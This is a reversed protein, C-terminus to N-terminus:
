FMSTTLIPQRTPRRYRVRTATHTAHYTAFFVAVGADEDFSSTHLEYSAGPAIGTAFGYMWECYDKVTSVEALPESQAVFTANDAVYQKCGAWGEPADCAAFFKRASDFATM